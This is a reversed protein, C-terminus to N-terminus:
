EKRELGMKTMVREEAERMQAREEETEHDYGLCHLIGHVALYNLEREFSHGYEEAQELARQRCIVVSGLYLKDGDESDICEGHEESLITEGRTLEMSPFSLVDTVRDIGRQERNLRAIEEEDVILLEVLLPLDAEALGELASSLRDASPFDEADLVFQEARPTM